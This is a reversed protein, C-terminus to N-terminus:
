HGMRHLEDDLVNKITTIRRYEELYRSNDIAKDLFQTELKRMSSDIEMIRKKLHFVYSNMDEEKYENSKYISKVRGDSIFCIRDAYRAMTADHTVMVVIKELEDVCKRLYSVIVEANETDLEGTPEDALILWPDNALAMAIAVRQKEGGSLQDPLHNGRKEIGFLELLEETRSHCTKSDMNAAVMPLEINERVSLSSILNLSQFVYGVSELRFRDREKEIFHTIDVGQIKITGATPSEIGGIINLLTTKGSGSPGMISVFESEEIQLNFGRLAQVRTNGASYIKVLDEIIILTM